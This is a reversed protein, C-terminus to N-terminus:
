PSKQYVEILVHCLALVMIAFNLPQLDAHSATISGTSKLDPCSCMLYSRGPLESGKLDEFDIAAKTPQM